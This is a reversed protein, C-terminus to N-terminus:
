PDKYNYLGQKWVVTMWDASSLLQVTQEHRSCGYLSTILRSDTPTVSDYIILRDRCETLLWEVRLELRSGAPASRQTNPGELVVPETSVLSTYRYC